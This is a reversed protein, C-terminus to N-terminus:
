AFREKKGRVFFRILAIFIGLGLGLLLGGLVILLKRPKIPQDPLALVGDRRYVRFADESVNFNRYFAMREELQRLNDIYPDDSNRKEM